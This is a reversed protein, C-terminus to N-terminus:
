KNRAEQSGKRALMDVIENNVIGKHGKVKEFRINQGFCEYLDILKKWLDPNKVGEYQYMRWRHYWGDLICNVVYASDSKVIIEEDLDAVENAYKMAEIVATMEMRNNTTDKESGYRNYVIKSDQVAVFAWGGSNNAKGNGICSGDTWLEIM